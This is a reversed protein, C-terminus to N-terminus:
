RLAWELERALDHRKALFEDPDTEEYGLQESYFDVVLEAFRLVIDRVAPRDCPHTIALPKM